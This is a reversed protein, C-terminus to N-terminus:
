PVRRMTAHDSIPQLGSAGGIGPRSGLEARLRPQSPELYVRVGCYKEDCGGQTSQVELYRDLYMGVSTNLQLKSENSIAIGQVTALIQM